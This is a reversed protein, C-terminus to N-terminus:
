EKKSLREVENLALQIADTDDTIGDGKAGFDRVNLPAAYLAAGTLLLFLLNLAHQKM